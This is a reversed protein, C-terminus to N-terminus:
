SNNQWFCSVDIKKWGSKKWFNVVEDKKAMSGSEISVDYGNEILTCIKEDFISDDKVPAIVSYLHNKRDKLLVFFQDNFTRM